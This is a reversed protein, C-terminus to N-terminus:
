KYVDERKLELLVGHLTWPVHATTNHLCLDSVTHLEGSTVCSGVQDRVGLGSFKGSELIYNKSTDRVETRSGSPGQSHSVMATQM